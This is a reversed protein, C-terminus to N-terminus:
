RDQTLGALTRANHEFWGIVHDMLLRTRKPMVRQSPYVLFVPQQASRYDPLLRILEGTELYRYLLYYPLRAVGAGAVAAKALLTFHNCSLSGNVTVRIEQHGAYFLWQRHGPYDSNYLCNHQLLDDPHEPSGYQELYGPSACVLSEIGYIPRAVLNDDVAPDTRLGFDFGDGIIDQFQNALDLEVRVQPYHKQFSMLIADFFTEGLSVPVTVRVTGVPQDRLQDLSERVTDGVTLLSRATPLLTQGATTLNLRRTSRHVLRVGLQQELSQLQRSVHGKTCGLREAAATFSGTEILVAFLQMVKLDIEPNNNM